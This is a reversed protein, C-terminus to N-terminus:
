ARDINRVLIGAGVAVTDLPAAALHVPINFENQIREPLRKLLSGGGTLYIGNAMIDVILEPPVQEIVFKISQILPVLVREIADSIDKAQIAREFPLRTASHRGQVWLTEKDVETYHANGVKIKIDEATGQSIVLQYSERIQEIIVDNMKQGSYVTSESVIVEGYSVVAIDTTGGGIDVIMQGVPQHIDIGVGVLAALSEEVIMARRIGLDKIADVVAKKEVKSIHSPVCIVVDLGFSRRILVKKIFYGLMKKTLSFDAIVGEKIPSVLLYNESTKGMLQQAEKGYAVPEKTDKQIAVLSPERLAIGKNHIYIQTNTTGLDIGIKQKGFLAM